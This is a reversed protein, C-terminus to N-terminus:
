GGKKPEGGDGETGDVWWPGLTWRQDGQDYVLVVRPNDKVSVGEPKGLRALCTHQQPHHGVFLLTGVEGEGLARWRALRAELDALPCGSKFGSGGDKVPVLAPALAALLLEATQRTRKTDTHVILDPVIGQRALFLGMDRAEQEGKEALPPDGGAGKAKHGHRVFIFRM